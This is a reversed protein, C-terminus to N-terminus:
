TKKIMSHANIACAANRPRLQTLIAIRAMKAADAQPRILLASDVLRSSALIVKASAVILVKWIVASTSREIGVALLHNEDM